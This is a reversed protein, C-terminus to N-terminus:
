RKFDNIFGETIWNALAQRNSSLVFRKQDHSNQINGLEVFVSVPQTHTLVYLGRSSVTGEFGRNPQHKDYKEQFTKRLQGALLQGKSWGERHYFFVDTQEGRSRSDVHLFIARCYTYEDKEKKYLENIADCRQQLRAVQNLPITKGVCTERKSNSLYQDDRIGDKADQIIIHVEAGEQKLCRALRLAVDYAYEDEHLETKGVKGIAGPDPGGHGSVVYICAGKLKGSEVKGKALSKGFLPENFEYGIEHKSNNSRNDKPQQGPKAVDSQKPENSATAPANQAKSRQQATSKIPPLAYSVDLLLTTKGKLKQKNLELFEKYYSQGSRGHRQLFTTIGEGRKPKAYQTQATVTLTVLMLSMLVIRWKLKPVFLRKKM